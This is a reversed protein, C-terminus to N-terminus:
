DRQPRYEFLCEGRHDSFSPFIAPPHPFRSNEAVPSIAAILMKRLIILLRCLYADSARQVNIILATQNINL